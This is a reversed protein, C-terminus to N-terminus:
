HEYRGQSAWLRVREEVSFTQAPEGAFKTELTFAHAELPVTVYSRTRLFARVFLESYRQLGLVEIQVTHVLVHFLARNSIQEHFVIVDGFSLAPMHVLDPLNTFGASWAEAFFPPNSVRRGRLTVARVKELLHPSFYPFLLQRHDASLPEGTPKFQERQEQLYQALKAIIDGIRGENLACDGNTLSDPQSIHQAIYQYYDHLANASSMARRLIDRQAHRAIDEASFRLRLRDTACQASLLELQAHRLEANMQVIAVRDGPKDWSFM